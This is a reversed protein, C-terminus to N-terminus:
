QNLLLKTCKQICYNKLWTTSKASQKLLKLALILHCRNRRLMWFFASDLVTEDKAFASHLSQCLSFVRPSLFNQVAMKVMQSCEVFDSSTSKWLCTLVYFSNDLSAIHLTTIRIKPWQIFCMKCVILFLVSLLLRLDFYHVAALFAPPGSTQDSSRGLSLLAWWWLAVCHKAVKKATM